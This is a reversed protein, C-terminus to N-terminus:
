LMGWGWRMACPMRVRMAEERWARPGGEWGSRVVWWSREKRVVGVKGELRSGMRRGMLQFGGVRGECGVGGAGRRGKCAGIGTEDKVGRRLERVERKRLSFYWVKRERVERFLEGMDEGGEGERIEVIRREAQVRGQAGVMLSVYQRRVSSQM